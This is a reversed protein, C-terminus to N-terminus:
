SEAPEADRDLRQPRLRKPVATLAENAAGTSGCATLLPRHEPIALARFQEDDIRGVIMDLSDEVIRDNITTALEDADAGGLQGRAVVGDWDARPAFLLVTRPSIPMAIEEATAIGRRQTPVVHVLETVERPRRGKKKPSRRRTAKRPPREDPHACEPLHPVPEGETLVIVMEDGILLLPRDLTLLGVPRQLLEDAVAAAGATMIEIHENQHPTFELARLDDETVTDAMRGGVMTKAYWDVMMEHERRRRPSRVIQFAVFEVLETFEQYTLAVNGMFPNNLKRLVLAARDEVGSLLHELSSDLKGDTAIFTYFDTIALNAVTRIGEIRDHKSKAWVRGSSDAWKKLVFSPVVHHRAGVKGFRHPSQLWEENTTM